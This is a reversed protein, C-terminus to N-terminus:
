KETFFLKLLEIARDKDSNSLPKNNLYIEHDLSFLNEISFFYKQAKQIKNLDYSKAVRNMPLSFHFKYEDTLANEELEIGNGIGTVIRSAEKSRLAFLRHTNYWKVFDGVELISGIEESFRIAFNSDLHFDKENKEYENIDIDLRNAMDELSFGRHIRLLKLYDGVSAFLHFTRALNKTIGKTFSEESIRSLDSIWKERKKVITIEQLNNKQNSNQLFDLLFMKQNKLSLQEIMKSVFQIDLTEKSKENDMYGAKIMLQFFDVKLPQFLKKLVDPSPSFRGNEIQSLYSNSVGSLKELQILTLGQKKRNLKIFEGIVNEMLM